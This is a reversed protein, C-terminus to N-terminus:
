FSVNFGALLTRPLPRVRNLENPDDDPGPDVANRQDNVVEPDWGTWDTLTLINKGSVYITLGGLGWKSLLTQGLNYSLTVDQLRVFSRDILLPGTLPQSWFMGPANSVGNTPTWYPRVAPRNLRRGSIDTGGSILNGPDGLFFDNGGQITNIFFNLTFNKYTFTNGIGLRFNPDQYGLITRDDDPHLDSNGDTTTIDRLKFHGPFFNEPTGTSFFEEETWVEGLNDYGFFVNIPEGTFWQNGIDFDNEGGLLRTLKNRNLSFAFNSTWRFDGTEVNTTRLAIEVGQNEVAGINTLINTFGTARPLSREVIVDETESTYVDISGGIRDNFLSFDLGFNLSTTTEWKLDPNGLRNPRYETVVQDGIITSNVAVTAFSAFRPIGDNGNEGYSVRAKLFELWNVNQLFSEESLVWALSVSPFTATKNNTAFASFGDRRVTGTLIYRDNYTYILRGMYAIRDQEEANGSEVVQNLGLSPLNFGSSEIDFGTSRLDTTTFKQNERSALLTVDVKHRSAFTNSYTVLNNMLWSTNHFNQRRAQGSNAIGARTFSQNYTFNRRIDVTNSFNFEYALGKVWPVEVKAKVALFMNDRLDDNLSPTNTLPNEIIGDEGVVDTFNGDATRLDGWPSADLAWDLRANVGSYDRFSYATNLGVNFWDTIDTDFNARVTAREFQDNIQLGEQETYTGSIYYSSKATRGSVSLDYNQIFASERLTQDIWNIEQGERFNDQEETSRLFVARDEVSTPNPREPRLDNPDEGGREQYRNYWGYLQEQHAYDILRELFLEGDMINTADTDALDQTGIYSNFSITPKETKGKKTTIIIVGNSARAGYVAAASADKLVDINEVDSVSINSLAGNYIIGDLIILPSQSANLSNQGRVQIEPSGGAQTTVGVNVGAAYGQLAQGIDVNASKSKEGMDVSVISGTLDKRRQTGYGIVVVESLQEASELLQIDLTTQNNLAIEQTEYGTFSVVLVADAGTVELSFNGDIDTATGNDTGKELITAGPLGLGDADTVRGTVTVDELATLGPSTRSAILDTPLGLTHLLLASLVLLLVPKRQRRTLMTSQPSQNM